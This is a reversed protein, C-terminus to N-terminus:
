SIRMSKNSKREFRDFQIKLEIQSPSIRHLAFPSTSSKTTKSHSDRGTNDLFELIGPSRITIRVIDRTSAKTRPQMANVPIINPFDEEDTVNVEEIFGDV